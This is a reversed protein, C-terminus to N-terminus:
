KKVSVKQFVKGIFLSIIWFISLIYAGVSWLQLHNYINRNMINLFDFLSMGGYTFFLIFSLVFGAIYPAVLAAIVFFILINDDTLVFKKRRSETHNIVGSGNSKHATRPKLVMAINQDNGSPRKFSKDWDLHEDKITQNRKYM